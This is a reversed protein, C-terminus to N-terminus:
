ETVEIFGQFQPNVFGFGGYEKSEVTKGVVQGNKWTFLNEAEERDVSSNLIGHETELHVENAGNGLLNIIQTKM